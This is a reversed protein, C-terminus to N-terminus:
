CNEAIKCAIKVIACTVNFVVQLIGMVMVVGIDLHAGLIILGIGVFM